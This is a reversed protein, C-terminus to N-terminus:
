TCTSGSRVAEGEIGVRRDNLTPIRSNGTALSSEGGGYKLLRTTKGRGEEPPPRFGSRSGVGKQEM